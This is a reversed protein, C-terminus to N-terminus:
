TGVLSHFNHSHKVRAWGSSSKPFVEVYLLADSELCPKLFDKVHKWIYGKPLQLM